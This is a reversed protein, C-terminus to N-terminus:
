NMNIQRVIMYVGSIYLYYSLPQFLVLLDHTNVKLAVFSFDIRQPVDLCTFRECDAVSITKCAKLCLRLYFSLLKLTLRFCVKHSWVKVPKLSGGHLTSDHFVLLGKFKLQIRIAPYTFPPCFMVKHVLTSNTIVVGVVVREFWDFKVQVYVVELAVKHHFSIFTFHDVFHITHQRRPWMAVEERTIALDRYGFIM